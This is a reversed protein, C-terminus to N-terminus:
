DGLQGSRHGMKQRGAYMTPSRKGPLNAELVIQEVFGQNIELEVCHDLKDVIWVAYGKTRKQFYGSDDDPIEEPRAPILMVKPKPFDYAHGEYAYGFIVGATIVDAKEPGDTPLSGILINLGKFNSQIVVVTHAAIKFLEKFKNYFGLAPENTKAAPTLIGFVAFQKFVGSIVETQGEVVPYQGPLGKLGYLRVQTPNFARVAGAPTTYTPRHFDDSM